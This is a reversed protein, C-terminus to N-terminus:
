LGVCFSPSSPQGKLAVIIEFYHKQNYRQRDLFFRHFLNLIDKFYTILRAPQQFSALNRDRNIDCTICTVLIHLNNGKPSHFFSASLSTEGAIESLINIAALADEYKEMFVFSYTEVSDNDCLISRVKGFTRFVLSLVEVKIDSNSFPPSKSIHIGWGRKPNYSMVHDVTTISDSNRGESLACSILMMLNDRTAFDESTFRISPHESKRNECILNNKAILDAITDECDGSRKVDVSNSKALLRLRHPWKLPTNDRDDKNKKITSHKINKNGGSLM